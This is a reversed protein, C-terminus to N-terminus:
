ALRMANWRVARTVTVTRRHRHQLSGLAKVHRTVDNASEDLEFYKRRRLDHGVSWPLNARRIQIHGCHALEEGTTTRQGRTALNRVVSLWHNWANSCTTCLSGGVAVIRLARESANNDIPAAPNELFVQLAPWNKM